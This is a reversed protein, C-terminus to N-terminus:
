LPSVRQPLLQLPRMRLHHTLYSPSVRQPMLQSPRMRIYNQWDHCADNASEPMQWLSPLPHNDQSANQDQFSVARLVSHFNPMLNSAVGEFDTSSIADHTCAGLGVNPIEAQESIFDGNPFFNWFHNGIALKDKPIIM